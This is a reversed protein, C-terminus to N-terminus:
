CKFNSKVPPWGLRLRTRNSTCQMMNETSKLHVELASQAWTTFDTKGNYFQVFSTSDYLPGILRRLAVENQRITVWYRENNPMWVFWSVRRSSLVTNSKISSKRFTQDICPTISRIIYSKTFYFTLTKKEVILIETNAIKCSLIRVYM